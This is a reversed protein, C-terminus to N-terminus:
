SLVAKSSSAQYTPGQVRTPNCETSSSFPVTNDPPNTLKAARKAHEDAMENGPIDRHGPVYMLNAHDCVKPLLERIEATDHSYNEIAQLLSLSDTCFSVQEFEKDKLWNIGLLMARKEEEYSCTHVRGKKEIVELRTPNLFTGGTMVAAAGGDKIGGTCSGDTYIIIDAKTDDIRTGIAEISHKIDQNTFITWNM